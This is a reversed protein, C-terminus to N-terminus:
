KILSPFQHQSHQSIRTILELVIPFEQLSEQPLLSSFKRLSRLSSFSSFSLLIRMLDVQSDMLLSEMMIYISNNGRFLQFLLNFSLINPYVDCM